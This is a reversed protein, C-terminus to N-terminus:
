SRTSITCSGGSRSMLCRKIEVERITRNSEIIYAKDGVMMPNILDKSVEMFIKMYRSSIGTLIALGASRFRRLSTNEPFSSYITTPLSTM